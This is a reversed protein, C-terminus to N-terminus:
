DARKSVRAGEAFAALMLGNWGTLIKDDRAPKVRRERAAVRWGPWDGPWNLASVVAESSIFHSLPQDAAAVNSPSNELTVM